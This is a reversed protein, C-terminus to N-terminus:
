LYLVKGHREPYGVPAYIYVEEELDGNLFATTIDM